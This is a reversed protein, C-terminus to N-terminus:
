DIRQHLTIRWCHGLAFVDVGGLRDGWKDIMENASRQAVSEFANNIIAYPNDQGGRATAEVFAASFDTAANARDAAQV